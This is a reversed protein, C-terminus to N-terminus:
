RGDACSLGTTLRTRQSDRRPAMHRPDHPHPRDARRHSALGPRPHPTARLYLHGPATRPDPGGRLLAAFAEAAATDTGKPETIEVTADIM